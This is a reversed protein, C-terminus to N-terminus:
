QSRSWEILLQGSLEVGDLEGLTLKVEGMEVGHMAWLDLRVDAWPM